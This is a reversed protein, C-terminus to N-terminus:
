ISLLVLSSLALPLEFGALKGPAPGEATGGAGEEPLISQKRGAKPAVTAQAAQEAKSPPAAPLNFRQLASCSCLHGRPLLINCVYISIYPKHTRARLALSKGLLPSSFGTYDAVVGARHLYATLPHQCLNGEAGPFAELGEQPALKQSCGM